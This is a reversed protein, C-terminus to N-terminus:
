SDTTEVSWILDGQTEFWEWTAALGQELQWKPEFGFVKRARDFTAVNRRGEGKRAWQFVIPHDPKGAINRLAQALELVTTERGSSLHFVEHSVAPINLAAEIGSCLDDVYIYDRSAAGDGYIVIPEDQVLAKIFTTV